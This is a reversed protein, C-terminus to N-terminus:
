RKDPLVKLKRISHFLVYRSKLTFYAEDRTAGFSSCSELEHVYARYGNNEKDPSITIHYDTLTIEPGASAALDAEVPLQYTKCYLQRFDQMFAHHAAVSMAHSNDITSKLANSMEVPDLDHSNAWQYFSLECKELAAALAPNVEVKPSRGRPLKAILGANRMIGYLNRSAKNGLIRALEVVSYGRKTAEHLALELEPFLEDDTNWRFPNRKRM